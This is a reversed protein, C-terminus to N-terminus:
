RGWRRFGVGSSSVPMVVLSPGQSTLVETSTGREGAGPAATRGGGRPVHPIAAPFPPRAGLQRAGSRATGPRWSAGPVNRAARGPPWAIVPAVHDAALPHHGPQRSGRGAMRHSPGRWPAVGNVRGTVDSSTPASAPSCPWPPRPPALAAKVPFRLGAASTTLAGLGRRRPRRSRARGHGGVAQLLRFPATVHVDLLLRLDSDALGPIPGSRPLGTSVLGHLQGDRRLAADLLTRPADAGTVDCAIAHASGPLDEAADTVEKLAAGDIDDAVM